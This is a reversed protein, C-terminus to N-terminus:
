YRVWEILKSVRVASGKQGVDGIAGATKMGQVVTALNQMSLILAAALAVGVAWRYKHDRMAIEKDESREGGVVM